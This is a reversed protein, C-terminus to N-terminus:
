ATRKLRSSVAAIRGWSHWRKAKIVLRLCTLGKRICDRYTIPEGLVRVVCLRRVRKPQLNLRDLCVALSAARVPRKRTNM